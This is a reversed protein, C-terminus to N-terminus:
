GAVKGALPPSGSQDSRVLRRVYFFVDVTTLAGVKLAMVRGTLPISVRCLDRRPILLLLHVDIVLGIGRGCPPPKV